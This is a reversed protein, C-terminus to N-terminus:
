VQREEATTQGTNLGRDRTYRQNASMVERHGAKDRKLHSLLMSCLSQKLRAEREQDDKLRGRRSQLCAQREFEQSLKLEKRARHRILWRVLSATARRESRHRLLQEAADRLASM